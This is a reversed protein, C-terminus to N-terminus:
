DLRNVEDENHMTARSVMVGGVNVPTLHAVPTLVGTRGVYIGLKEVVTEAREASYKHAIAWRPARSVFGLRRQWDLRNVKYVMGDIDYALKARDAGLKPHAAVM